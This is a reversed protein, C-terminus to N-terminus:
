GLSELQVLHPAKQTQHAGAGLLESRGPKLDSIDERNIGYAPDSESGSGNRNVAGPGKHRHRPLAQANIL